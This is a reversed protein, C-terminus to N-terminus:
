YDKLSKEIRRKIEDRLTIPSLVKVGEGFSLILQQLEFNPIVEIEIIVGNDEKSIKKQSGHIPKTDVYRWLSNSIWLQIKQSEINNPKSVGILDEFYEEFDIDCDKFPKMIREIKVIRDLPYNSINEYHDDLCFLFWRRNYQKLHYPHIICEIPNPSDFNQYTLKLVQKKVIAKFLPTFHKMGKNYQGSEFSVINRNIAHFSSNFRAELENVWEFQPFGDFRKLLNIVSTLKSFEEESLEYNFISFSTDRYRYLTKRGQKKRDIVTNHKNEIETLDNQLTTRSTISDLGRILLERNCANILEEGSHYDVSSLLRDLVKERISYNKNSPM